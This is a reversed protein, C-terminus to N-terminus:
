QREFNSTEGTVGFGPDAIKKNKETAPGNPNFYYATSSTGNVFLWGGLGPRRPVAAIQYNKGSLTLIYRYNTDQAPDRSLGNVGSDTKVGKVLEAISCYRNFQLDCPIQCDVIASLFLLAVAEQPKLKMDTGDDWKGTILTGSPLEVGSASAKSKAAQAGVAAAGSGSHASLPVPRGFSLMGLVLLPASLALTLRVYRQLM